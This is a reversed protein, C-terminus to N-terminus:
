KRKKLQNMLNAREKLNTLFDNQEKRTPLRYFELWLEQLNARVGRSMAALAFSDFHHYKDLLGADAMHMRMTSNYGHFLNRKPGHNKRQKSAAVSGGKGKAM